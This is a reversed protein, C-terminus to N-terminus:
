ETKEEEVEKPGTFTFFNLGYYDVSNIPMRSFLRSSLDYYAPLIGYRVGPEPEFAFSHEFVEYDDFIVQWDERRSQGKGTYSKAFDIDMIKIQNKFGYPMPISDNTYGYPEGSYLIAGIGVSNLIHRMVKYKLTIQTADDSVKMDSANIDCLPSFYREWIPDTEITIEDSDYNFIGGLTTLSGKIKTETNMVLKQTQEFSNWQVGMKMRADASCLAQMVGWVKIGADVRMGASAHISTSIGSGPISFGNENFKSATTNCRTSFGESTQYSFGLNMSTTYSMGASIEMSGGLGAVGYFHIVPVITLPPIPIPTFYATLLHFNKDVLDGDLELTLDASLRIDPSISTHFYHLKNDFVGVLVKMDLNMSATVDLTSNDSPELTFNVSGTSYNFTKRGSARTVPMSLEITSGSRTFAINEGDATEVRSLYSSLDLEVGGEENFSGDENWIPEGMILTEFVEGIDTVPEAVVSIYDNEPNSISVIRGLYGEPFLVSPTNFLLVEGMKPAFAKEVTMFLTHTEFKIDRVWKEYTELRADIIYDMRGRDVLTADEQLEYEVGDPITFTEGVPYVKSREIKKGSVSGITKVVEKEGSMVFKVEFGKEYDRPPIFLYFYHLNNNDPVVGDGCDVTLSLASGVGSEPFRIQPISEDWRVTFAGSVPKGSLDRFIIKEVKDGESGSYGIKLLAFLNRFSIGSSSDKAVMFNAPAYPQSVRELVNYPQTAPLILNLEGGATLTAKEQYPYYAIVDGLPMSGTTRFKAKKGNELIDEASVTFLLNNEKEEGFVGIKDGAQWSVEAKIGPVDIVVTRSSMGEQLINAHLVKEERKSEQLETIDPTCGSILLLLVTVISLNGLQHNITKTNMINGKKTNIGDQLIAINM